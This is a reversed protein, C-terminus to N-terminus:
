NPRLSILIGYSAGVGVDSFNTTVAGTAGAVAQDRMYVFMASRSADTEAGAAQARLTYGTPTAPPNWALGAIVIALVLSNDVTTTIGPITITANGSALTGRAGIVDVSLPLNPSQRFSLQLFRTATSSASATWTFGADGPILATKYSIGSIPAEYDLIETWGAPTTWWNSPGSFSQQAYIALMLDGTATNPPLSSTTISGSVANLLTQSSVFHVFKGRVQTNRVVLNKSVLGM